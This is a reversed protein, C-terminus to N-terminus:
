WVQMFCKRDFQNMINEMVTSSKFLEDLKYAHQKTLSDSATRGKTNGISEGTTEGSSESNSEGSTEGTSNDTTEGSSEGATNQSNENKSKTIDNENATTMTDNNLDVNTRNGPLTSRASRDNTEAEGTVDQNSTESRNQTNENQTNESNTSSQEDTRNETRNETTDQETVQNSVNESENHGTIYKDLNQYVENIYDEYMMFTSFLAMQFSEITQRNIQRNMFRFLFMRKFHIDHATEKLRYGMFLDDLIDIIEDDFRMIKPMLQFNQDYYVLNGDDDVFEDHPTMDKLSADIMKYLTPTAM